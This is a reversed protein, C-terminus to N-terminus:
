DASRVYKIGYNAGRKVFTFIGHVSLTNVGIKFLEDMDTMFMPYTHGKQDEWDIKASSRGRSYNVYKLTLEVEANPKWIEDAGWSGHSKLVVEEGDYVRRREEDTLDNYSYDQLNGNVFPFCILKAM